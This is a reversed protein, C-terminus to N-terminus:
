KLEFRYKEIYQNKISEGYSLNDDNKRKCSGVGCFGCNKGIILYELIIKKYTDKPTKEYLFLTDINNYQLLTLTNIVFSINNYHMLNNKECFDIYLNSDSKYLSYLVSYVTGIKHSLSNSKFIDAVDTVRSNSSIDSISNKDWPFNWDNELMYDLLIRLNNSDPNSLYNKRKNPYNVELYYQQNKEDIPYYGLVDVDSMDFGCEDYLNELINLEKIGCSGIWDTFHDQYKEQFIGTKGSFVKKSVVNGIYFVDSVGLLDYENSMNEPLIHHGNYPVGLGKYYSKHGRSVRGDIYEITDNIIVSDVVQGTENYVFIEM